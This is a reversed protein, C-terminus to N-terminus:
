DAAPVDFTFTTGSGPESDVRISGGQEEVLQRTIHLGLGLGRRGTEGHAQKTTFFPEWVRDLNERSIGCGTDAVAIQVRRGVKAASLTLTGGRDLMAQRANIVLNLLVQQLSPENVLARLDEAAEISVEINDKAPDRGLCDVADALLPLLRVASPESNKNAAMGLLRECLWSLRRANKHTKELATKMLAPDNSSVAYQSYTVIPTLLNNFEHALMASVTGLSAMRQLAQVQKKLSGLDRELRDLHEAINRSRDAEAPGNVPPANSANRHAPSDPVMTM